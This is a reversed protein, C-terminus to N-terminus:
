NMKSLSNLAPQDEEWLCYYFCPKIDNKCADVFLKSRESLCQYYMLTHSSDVSLFSTYQHCSCCIQSWGKFLKWRSLTLEPNIKLTTTKRYKRAWLPITMSIFLLEL